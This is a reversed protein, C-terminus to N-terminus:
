LLLKPSPIRRQRQMRHTLDVAVFGFIMWYMRDAMGGLSLHVHYILLIPVHVLLYIAMWRYAYQKEFIGVVAGWCIMFFGIVSLFLLPWGGVVGASVFLNHPDKFSNYSEMSIGSSNMFRYLIGLGAMPHNEFIEIGRHVEEFRSSLGDQAARGMLAQEGRILGQATDVIASGFVLIVTAGLVIGISKLFRLHTSPTPMMLLTLLIVIGVAFASSRTGTLMIAFLSAALVTLYFLSQAKSESAHLLKALTFVFAVTACTVMFPIHKFVGIFRGGKYVHEPFLVLLVLSLITLGASWRWALNLAEEARLVSPIVVGFVLILFLAFLLGSMQFFVSQEPHVFLIQVLTQVGLVIALLVLFLRYVPHLIHTKRSQLWLLILPVGLLINGLINMYPHLGYQFVFVSASYPFVGTWELSIKSIFILAILALALSKM